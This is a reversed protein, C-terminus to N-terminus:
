MSSAARASVITIMSLPITTQSPEGREKFSLYLKSVTMMSVLSGIM